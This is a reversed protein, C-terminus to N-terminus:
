ALDLRVFGEAYTYGYKAGIRASIPTIAARREDMDAVQSVHEACAQFKTELTSSVDVAFNYTDFNMMLVTATKHPELGEEDLLEPFALHDRALPFVADLAAEGSARHDPHNVLGQEVSYMCSPDWMVVTDPKVRRIVRVVDRKVDLTNRLTGDPYGLFFVEKVGLKAAANQQEQQRIRCLHESTTQRDESGNGGDTLILYYVEAGDAVFRAMSGGAGFDLDDPHAAIGLVIKPQLPHFLRTM